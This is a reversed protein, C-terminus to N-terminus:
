VEQLVLGARSALEELFLDRGSTRRCFAIVYCATPPSNGPPPSTECSWEEGAKIELFKSITAFPFPKLFFM